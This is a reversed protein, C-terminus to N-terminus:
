YMGSGADSGAASAAVIKDEYVSREDTTVISAYGRVQSTIREKRALYSSEDIEGSEYINELSRLEAQLESEQGTPDNLAYTLVAADLESANVTKKDSGFVGTETEAWAGVKSGVVSYYDGEANYGDADTKRCLFLLYNKGSEFSPAMSSITAVREGVGGEIRVSITKSVCIGEHGEEAFSDDRYVTAVDVYVDTFYRAGTGNVPAVLLPESFGVVEGIVVVPARDLLDALDYDCLVGSSYEVVEVSDAGEDALFSDVDAKLPPAVVSGSAASAEVGEQGVLLSWSFAAVVLLFAAISIFLLLPKRM